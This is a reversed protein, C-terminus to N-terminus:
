RRAKFPLYHALRRLMRYLINARISEMFGKLSQQEHYLRSQGNTLESLQFWVEELKEHLV